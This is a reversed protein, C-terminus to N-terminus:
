HFLYNVGVKVTDVTLKEDFPWGAPTLTFTETGFDFHQYEIKGSWNPAFMYELGAGLTWGSFTSLGSGVTFGATTSFSEKGNYFAWGGKAYVLARDFAFGLRGTVDGYWGSNIGVTTNSATGPDLVSSNIGMWGIDGEIGFVWQNMQYNYGLQGGGLFGTKDVSFDQGATGAAAFAVGGLGVDTNTLHSWAAGVNGGIYFGTWNIPAAVPAKYIPAKVAMDAANAAAAFGLAAIAAYVVILKKVNAGKEPFFQSSSLECTKISPILPGIM